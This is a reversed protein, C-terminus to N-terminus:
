PMANSPPPPPQKYYILGDQAGDQVFGCSEFLAQSAKNESKIRAQARPFRQCIACILAKGVGLGQYDPHTCVRIDNDIAGAYGAFRNAVLAVLYCEHHKAMYSIQEQETICVQELFGGQVRADNRLRRIEDAYALAATTVSLQQGERTTQSVISQANRLTSSGRIYKSDPMNEITHTNTEASIHIMSCSHPTVPPSFRQEQGM